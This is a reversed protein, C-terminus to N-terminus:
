IDDDGVRLATDRVSLWMNADIMDSNENDVIFQKLNKLLEEQLNQSLAGQDCTAVSRYLRLVLSVQYYKLESCSLKPMFHLVLPDFLQGEITLQTKYLADFLSILEQVSVENIKKTAAKLLCQLLIPDRLQGFQQACLVNLM